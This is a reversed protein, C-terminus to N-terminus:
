CHLGFRTCHFFLHDNKYSIITKRFSSYYDEFDDSSSSDNKHDTDFEELDIQEIFTHREILETIEKLLKELQDIKEKM